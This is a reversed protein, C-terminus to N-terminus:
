LGLSEYVSNPYYLNVEGEKKKARYDAPFNDLAHRIIKLKFPVHVTTTDKIVLPCRDQDIKRFHNLNVAVLPIELKLAVQLEWRVFRYLNKTSEGILVIAHKTKSFRERLRSKVTEEGARNTLPNLDHADHFDFDVNKNTKWGKMYSYAWMDKDADFIVYTKNRYGM